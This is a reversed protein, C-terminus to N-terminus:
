FLGKSVIADLACSCSLAVVCVRGLWSWAEVVLLFFFRSEILLIIVIVFIMGLRRHLNWATGYALWVLGPLGVECETDEYHCVWACRIRAGRLSITSRRFSTRIHTATSRSMGRRISIRSIVQRYFKEMQCRFADDADTVSRATFQM